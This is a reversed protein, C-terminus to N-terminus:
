QELYILFAQIQNLIDQLLMDKYTLLKGIIIIEKLFIFIGDGINAPILSCLDYNNIFSDFFFM